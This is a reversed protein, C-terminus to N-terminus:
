AVGYMISRHNNIKISVPPAPDGAAARLFEILLRFDAILLKRM